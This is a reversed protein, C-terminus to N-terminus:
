YSTEQDIVHQRLALAACKYIIKVIPHSRFGSIGIILFISVIHTSCM